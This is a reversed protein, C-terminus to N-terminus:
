GKGPQWYGHRDPEGDESISVVLGGLPGADPPCMRVLWSDVVRMSTARTSLVGLGLHWNEQHCLNEQNRFQLEQIVAQM